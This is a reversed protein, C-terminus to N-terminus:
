QVILSPIKPPSSAQKREAGGGDYVSLRRSNLSPVRGHDFDAVAVVGWRWLVFGLVNVEEVDVKGPRIRRKTELLGDTASMVFLTATQNLRLM